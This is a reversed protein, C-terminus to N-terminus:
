NVDKSLPAITCYSLGKMYEEHTFRRLMLDKDTRDFGDSTAWEQLTKRIIM